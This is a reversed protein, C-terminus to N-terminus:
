SANLAATGVECLNVGRLDSTDGDDYTARIDWLCQAEGREFSVQATDGNAIM